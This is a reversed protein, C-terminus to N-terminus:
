WISSQSTIYQKPKKVIEKLWSDQRLFLKKFLSSFLDCKCVQFISALFNHLSVLLTDQWQKTFHLAFTCNEEPNKIYPLVLIQIILISNITFLQINGFWDKWEIQNQLEPTLKVFFETMKDQKNNVVTNIVYMKLVANELKKVDIFYTM